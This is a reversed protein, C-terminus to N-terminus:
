TRERLMRDPIRFLFSKNPRCCLISLTHFDYFFRIIINGFVPFDDNPDGYLRSIIGGEEVRHYLQFPTDGSIISILFKVFRYPVKVARSANVSVISRPVTKPNTPGLPAPFVVVKEM